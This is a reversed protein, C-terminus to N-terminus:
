SLKSASAHVQCPTHSVITGSGIMAGVASSAMPSVIPRIRLVGM